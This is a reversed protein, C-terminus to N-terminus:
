RLQGSKVENARIVTKIRAIDRKVATIRMPNDLQNVALQFRLNFLESKLAALKDNLEAPSLERIENAKM